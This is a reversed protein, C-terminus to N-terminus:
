IWYNSIMQFKARGLFYALISAAQKLHFQFWLLDMWYNSCKVCRKCRRFFFVQNLKLTGNWVKSTLFHWCFNSRIQILIQEFHKIYKKEYTNQQPYKILLRLWYQNVRSTFLEIVCCILNFTMKIDLVGRILDHLVTELNTIFISYAGKAIMM